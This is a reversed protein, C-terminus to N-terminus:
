EEKKAQLREHTEKKMLREHRKKELANKQVVNPYLTDKKIAYYGDPTSTLYIRRTMKERREIELFLYFM